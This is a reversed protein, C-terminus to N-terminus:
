KKEENGKGQNAGPEWLLDANGNENLHRALVFLHDSLRNLYIVVSPNIPEQESLNTALREARRIISRAAHLYASAESGGPLVFSNLPKLTRNYDDIENELRQVQEHKIRLGEDKGKEYPTALDAGLDFLDNQILCLMQDMDGSSHLRAVGVTSNLEDSTGYATVRLSHKAVRVGNGLATEGSDGTKTYIKNLVVM